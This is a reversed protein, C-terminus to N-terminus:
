CRRVGLGDIRRGRFFELAHCASSHHPLPHSTLPTSTVPNPDQHLLPLCDLLKNNNNNNNDNNNYSDTNSDSLQNFMM